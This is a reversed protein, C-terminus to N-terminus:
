KLLKDLMVNIASDSPRPADAKVVNGKPDILIFRPISKIGYATIFDSKWDKDAILQVGGLNESKVMEQWKELDKEKDVSISIFAINKGSYKEEMEQLHPIQQRCPGCWTAWVDIYVYKGKFDSLTVTKGDVSKFSFGPSAKSELSRIKSMKAIEDPLNKNQIGIFINKVMNKYFFDYDSAKLKNEWEATLKEAEAKIAVDDGGKTFREILNEKDRTMEALFNNENAGKGEFSVTNEWKNADATFNIDTDNTLYLPQEKDKYYLTFFGMGQQLRGEFHGKKDLAYGQQWGRVSKVYVSDADANKITGKFNKIDAQAFAGACTLLLLLYKM